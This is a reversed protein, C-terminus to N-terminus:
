KQQSAALTAQSAVAQWRGERRIFTDTFPMQRNKFAVGKYAGDRTVTGTVVAADGYIRVKLNSNACATTKSGTDKYSALSSAKTDTGGRSGVATYDAALIRGLMAADGKLDAACWDNELQILEQEPKTQATLRDIGVVGGVVLLVALAISRM